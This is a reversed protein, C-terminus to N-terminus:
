LFLVFISFAIFIVGAVVCLKWVVISDYDLDVKRDQMKIVIGLTLLLVGALIMIIICLPSNYANKFVTLALIYAFFLGVFCISIILRPIKLEKGKERIKKSM